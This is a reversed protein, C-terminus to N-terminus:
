KAGGMPAFARVEVPKALGLVDDLRLRIVNDGIRYAPIKGAEILRRLTRVSCGYMAAAQKLTVYEVM